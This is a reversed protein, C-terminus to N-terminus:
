PREIGAATRVIAWTHFFVRQTFIPLGVWPSDGHASQILFSSLSMESVDFEAFRLQRWFIESPHAVTTVLDVGDPAVTGEILARSRENLSMCLSLQLRKTM